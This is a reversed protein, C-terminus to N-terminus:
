EKEAVTDHENDGDWEGDNVSDIDCENDFEGVQEEVDDDLTDTDDDIEKDCVCVNDGVGTGVLVGLKVEEIVVDGDCETEKENV